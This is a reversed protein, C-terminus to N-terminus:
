RSQSEPAPAPQAAEGEVPVQCVAAIAQARAQTPDLEQLQPNRAIVETAAESIKGVPAVFMCRFIADKVPQTATDSRLTAVLLSLTAGGDEIQQATPASAGQEAGAADQAAAPMAIFTATLAAAALTARFTM